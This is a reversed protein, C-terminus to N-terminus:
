QTNNNLIALDLALQTPNIMSNPIPLPTEFNSKECQKNEQTPRNQLMGKDAMVVIHKTWVTTDLIM